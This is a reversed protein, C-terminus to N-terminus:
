VKGVKGFFETLKETDVDYSLNGVFIKFGAVEPTGNEQAIEATM